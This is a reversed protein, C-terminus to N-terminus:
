NTILVNVFLWIWIWRREFREVRKNAIYSTQWDCNVISKNFLEKFIRELKYAVIIPKLDIRGWGWGSLLEVYESIHM